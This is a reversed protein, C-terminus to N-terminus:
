KDYAPIFFRRDLMLIFVTPFAVEFLKERESGVM